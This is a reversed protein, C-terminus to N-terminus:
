TQAGGAMARGPLAEEPAIRAKAPSRGVGVAPMAPPMQGGGMGAMGVMGGMVAEMGPMGAMGMGTQPKKLLKEISEDHAKILMSALERQDVDPHGTLRDFLNIRKQSELAKSVPLTAGPVVVIDYEGTLDEPRATFWEYSGKPHKFGIDRYTEKEEIEGGGGIIDVVKPISYFQQINSLRLRGLRHLAMRELLKLKLRIRKLSSEKLIAVETATDGQGPLSQMRIDIGTAKIIDDNIFEEERYSEAFLPIKEIPQISGIPGKIIGHPRAIFDEDDLELRDDVIYQTQINLHTTDIRMNRLTDREDQLCKMIKPEGLGTFSHPLMIDVGRVFPFDKHKYPIPNDSKTLLIGNAKILYLDNIKDYYHVVEIEMDDMNGLPKFWEPRYIATGSAVKKSKPFRKYKKLFDDKTLVLVKVVDRCNELSDAMPDWYFSWIPISEFYVDDFIIKEKSKWKKPEFKELDFDEIEKQEVLDQRWYEEGIALGYVLSDDIFELFELDGNGKEWTYEFIKNFKEAKETDGSERPRYYISPSQSAMESKATEIISFTDPLRLDSRWEDKPRNTRHMQRQKDAENWDSEYIQRKRKMKELREEIMNIKEKETESPTYVMKEYKPM